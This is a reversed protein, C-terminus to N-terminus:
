CNAAEAHMRQLQEKLSKPYHVKLRAGFQMFELLLDYTIHLQFSYFVQDEEVKVEIKRQTNHLPQSDFYHAQQLDTEILINEPPGENRMIGISYNFYCFPDESPEEAVQELIELAQIRDLGYLKLGNSGKPKALVYWRLRYERLLYPSVNKQEPERGDFYHYWFRISRQDNIAKIIEPIQESGEAKRGETQLADAAKLYHQRLHILDFRDLLDDLLKDKRERELYYAKKKSIIRVGFLSELELKDRQFTRINYGNPMLQDDPPTKQDIEDFFGKLEEFSLTKHREFLEILRRYRRFFRDKKM